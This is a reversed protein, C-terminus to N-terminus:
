RGAMESATLIRMSITGTLGELDIFARRSEPDATSTLEVAVSDSSGDPEFTISALASQSASGGGTATEASRYASSGVFESKEIRVGELEISDQWTCGTYEVFNGPDTLPEPEWLVLVKTEQPDFDLRLRLGLTAAEARAMLIATELRSMGEQLAEVDRRGGLNLIVAGALLALVALVLLVELLTFGGCARPPKASVPAM